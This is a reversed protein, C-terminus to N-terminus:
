RTLSNVEATYKGRANRMSEVEEVKATERVYEEEKMLYEMVYAQAKMLKTRINKIEADKKVTGQGLEENIRLSVNREERAKKM